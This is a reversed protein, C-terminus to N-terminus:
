FLQESISAEAYNNVIDDRCDYSEKAMFGM